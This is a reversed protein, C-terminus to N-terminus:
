KEDMLTNKVISQRKWNHSTIVHGARVYKAMYKRFNGYSFSCARRVVYGECPNGDREELHIGRILKEDWIGRYLVPVMKLGLLESWEITDDWSLCENLNNWISFTMFYSELNKYHISHKAFLNEGCVRWEEPINYGMKAHLSKVWSQSPHSGSNISRAHFYNTYLNTNEGDMKLTVIVEEGEFFGVDKIMRDDKGPSSWPLHYTRPYKVYPSFLRLVDGMALIKQVSEDFFLEGRIRGDNSLIMNGWKDYLNDGYMHDPIIIKTIGAAERIDECSLTTMEAEIHHKECLTAGNDIYYGGDEWLRRELIHHADKGAEKCIVCLHSDRNFVGGRFENRSMLKTGM